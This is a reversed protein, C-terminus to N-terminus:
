HGTPTAGPCSPSAGLWPAGPWLWRRLTEKGPVVSVGDEAGVGEWASSCRSSGSNYFCSDNERERESYRLSCKRIFSGSPLFLPLFFFLASLSALFNLQSVGIVWTTFLSAAGFKAFDSVRLLCARTPDRGLGKESPQPTCLEQLPRPFFASGQSCLLPM